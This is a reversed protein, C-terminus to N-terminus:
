IFVHLIRFLSNLCMICASNKSIKPSFFTHKLNIYIGSHKIKQFAIKEKAEASTLIILLSLTAEM